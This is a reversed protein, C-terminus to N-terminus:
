EETGDAQHLVAAAPENVPIGTSRAALAVDAQLSPDFILEVEVQSGNVTLLARNGTIGSRAATDPHIVIGTKARRNKLLPASMMTRSQDYLKTIPVLRLSGEALPRESGLSFRAFGNEAPRNVNPLRKGLGQRNEYQTGGYYLDKREIIPWQQICEALCAYDIDEYGATQHAIEKMVLAASKEELQLGLLRAIRATITFDAQAGALPSVAQYFRQVHREGSTYTGERETFALAPFVVDAMKATETLFLDQVVVFDATDVAHIFEPQGQVPDAGAIYVCGAKKIQNILGPDASFGMDWAGQMNGQHWVAVLGNNPRDYHGTSTLLQVCAQALNQSTELGIGESGYFVVANKAGSFAEVAARFTEDVSTSGYLLSNFAHNEQGYAYRIVHDAYQDLKTERPNMVILTAGRESAQKVRLWWIPAEEQLDSAVVLIADDKGLEGLNSGPTLGFSAVADGGAMYTYLLTKGNQHRTLRALNFYDENSLRGGVLTVLRSGIEHMKRATLDLAEDWSCPVLEDNVRKMPTTLRTEEEPYHYVFRGKDCIWIENIQENQRPMVRKVVFDGGSKAERRTDLVTNCGVPCHNCISAVPRMEWPRARFRFDRSTLAGVPCIDTTNGSYISDFPPNSYSVIETTRERHLFQLVPDGAIKDQFRICRGCQICREQDLVILDGLQYNKALHKKDELDIRSSTPGHAMTLNQLPCEGGKDCIPCDLPHSTLLFELMSRQADKVKATNIRVVMGETAETTCATELKPGFLFKPTGDAELQVQGTARDILPRGIEVLCMRCMGVPEMKPHYCFVPIDVDILRAANVILTGKPVTVTKDDITLTVEQAM